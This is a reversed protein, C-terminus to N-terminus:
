SKLEKTEDFNAVKKLIESTLRDMDLPKHMSDAAGLYCAQESSIDGWASFFYVVPRASLTQTFKLLDFGDKDPMRIDTVLIEFHQKKLLSTAEDVSNATVIERGSCKLLASLTTLIGQEDDVLLIPLNREM